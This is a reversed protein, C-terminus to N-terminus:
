RHPLACLTDALANGDSDDDFRGNGDVEWQPSGRRGKWRRPKRKPYKGTGRYPFQAAKLM